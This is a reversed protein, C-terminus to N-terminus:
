EHSQFTGSATSWDHEPPADIWNKIKVYAVGRGKMEQAVRKVSGYLKTIDLRPFQTRSGLSEKNTINM